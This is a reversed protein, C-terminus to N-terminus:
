KSNMHLMSPHMEWSTTKGCCQTKGMGQSESSIRKSPPYDVTVYIGYRLEKPPANKKSIEELSEM